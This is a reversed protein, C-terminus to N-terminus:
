QSTITLQYRDITALGDFTSTVIVVEGGPPVIIGSIESRARDSNLDDNGGLCDHPGAPSFPAGLIHLYGDGIWEASVTINLETLGDNSLVYDDYYSETAGPTCDEQLRTWTADGSDLSGV